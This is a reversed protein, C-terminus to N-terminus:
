SYYTFPIESFHTVSCCSQVAGYPHTVTLIQILLTGPWPQVTMCASVLPLSQLKFVAELHLHPSPGWKECRKRVATQDLNGKLVPLWFWQLPCPQVSPGSLTHYLCWVNFSIKKEWTPM